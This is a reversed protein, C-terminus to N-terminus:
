APTLNRSARLGGGPEAFCVKKVDSKGTPVQQEADAALCSAAFPIAGLVLGLAVVEQDLLCTKQFEGAAWAADRRQQLQVLSGCCQRLWSNCAQKYAVEEITLVDPLPVVTPESRLLGKLQEVEQKLQENEATRRAVQAKYADERALSAELQRTTTQVCANAAALREDLGAVNDHDDIEATSAVGEDVSREHEAVPTCTISKATASYKLTQLTQRYQEGDSHVHSLM